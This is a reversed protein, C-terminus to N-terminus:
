FPFGPSFDQFYGPNQTWFHQGRLKPQGNRLFLQGYHCCCYCEYPLLCVFVVICTCMLQVTASIVQPKLMVFTVSIFYTVNYSFSCYSFIPSHSAHRFYADHSIFSVCVTQLCLLCFPVYIAVCVCLCLCVCVCIYMNCTNVWAYGRTCVLVFKSIKLPAKWFGYLIM